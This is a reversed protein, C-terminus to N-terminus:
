GDPLCIRELCDMKRVSGGITGDNGDLHELLVLRLTPTLGSRMFRKVHFEPNGPEAAQVMEILGQKDLADIVDGHRKELEIFRSEAAEREAQIRDAEAIRGEQADIDRPLSPLSALKQRNQDEIKEIDERTPMAKFGIAIGSGPGALAALRDPDEKTLSLYAAIFEKRKWTNLESLPTQRLLDFGGISRVVAATATGMQDPRNASLARDLEEYALLAQSEYSVGQNRALEILEVPAAMFKSKTAALGAAQEVQEDTLGSLGAVYLRISAETLERHYMEALAVVVDLKRRSM